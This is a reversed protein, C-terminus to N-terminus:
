QYFNGRICAHPTFYDTTDDNDVFFQQINFNARRHAILAIVIHFNAFFPNLASWNTWCRLRTGLGDWTKWRQVNFFMPHGPYSAIAVGMVTVFHRKTPWRAVGMSRAWQMYARIRQVRELALVRCSYHVGVLRWSQSCLTLWGIKSFFFCLSHSSLALSGSKQSLSLPM